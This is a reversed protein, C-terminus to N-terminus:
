SCAEHITVFSIYNEDSGFVNNKMVLSDQDVDSIM